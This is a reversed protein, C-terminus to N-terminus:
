ACVGIEERKGSEWGSVNLYGLKLLDNARGPLLSAACVALPLVDLSGNLGIGPYLDMRM